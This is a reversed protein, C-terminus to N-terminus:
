FMILIIEGRGTIGVVGSRRMWELDRNSHKNIHQVRLVQVRNHDVLVQVAHTTWLRTGLSEAWVNSGPFLALHDM